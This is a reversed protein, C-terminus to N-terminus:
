VSLDLDEDDSVLDPEFKNLRQGKMQIGAMKAVGLLEDIEENRMNDKADRVQRMFEGRDTLKYGEFAKRDGRKAFEEPLMDRSQGIGWGGTAGELVTSPRYLQQQQQQQQQKQKKKGGPRSSSPRAAQFSCVFFSGSSSASWSIAVLAALLLQAVVFGGRAGASSRAAASIPSRLAMRSTETRPFFSSLANPVLLSRSTSRQQLFHFLVKGDRTTLM